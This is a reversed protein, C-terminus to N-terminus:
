VEGGKLLAEMKTLDAPETIQFWFTAKIVDIAVGLARSAPIVTQPLGFEESGEAKPVLPYDFVRTDLKFVNTNMLGPMGHHNGEAIEEVAGETNTVIRGGSSMHEMEDALVAWGDHAVVAAIDEQTYIDDANLIIFADNLLEKCLWLAGATGNLKEQEVYLIRKDKYTGGFHNHIASGLYGVVVIVEDVEDPLAALKYELLSMGNIELMPKPVTDTLTGM